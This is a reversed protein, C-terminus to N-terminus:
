CRAAQPLARVRRPVSLRGTRASTRTAATTGTLVFWHYLAGLLVHQRMDGWRAPADPLDPDCRALAAQMERVGLDMLRSNGNAGGREYTVWYPRLYGEEFVHM